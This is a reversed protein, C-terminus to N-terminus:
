KNNSKRIMYNFNKVEKGDDNVNVYPLEIKNGSKDITAANSKRGMELEKGAENQKAVQEKLRAIFIGVTDRMATSYIIHTTDLDTFTGKDYERILSDGVISWKGSFHSTYFIPGSYTSSNISHRRLHSFTHDRNFTISEEDDGMTSVDAWTGILESEKVPEGTKTQKDIYAELEEDTIDMIFKCQDSMRQWDGAAKELYNQRASSYTAYLLVRKDTVLKRLQERDYGLYYYPANLMMEYVEDQTLPSRFPRETAMYNQYFRRKLYFEQILDIFMPNDITKWTEQSSNFIKEKSDDIIFMEDSLLYNWVMSLTDQSISDIQDPHGILYDLLKGKEGQDKAGEKFAEINVDMDHIVMMAMQRGAGKKQLNEIYAATGFTLVISISTAIVTMTMERVIGGKTNMKQFKPMRFKVNM